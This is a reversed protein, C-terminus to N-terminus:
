FQLNYFREFQELLYFYDLHERLSEVLINFQYFLYFSLHGSDFAAEALSLRSALKDRLEDNPDHLLAEASLLINASAAKDYHLNLLLRDVGNLDIEEALLDTLQFKKVQGAQDYFFLEAQALLDRDFVAAQLLLNFEGSSPQRFYWLAYDEGVREEEFVIEEEVRQLVLLPKALADLLTAEISRPLVLLFYSLDTQSPMFLRLSALEEQKASLLVEDFLPDKIKFDATEEVYEHLLFFHGGTTGIQGLSNSLRERLVELREALSTGVFYEFELKPLLGESQESLQRTLRSLALWNVLGEAVYGDTQGILWHNLSGPDLVEGEPLFRFGYARLLTAASTVACGFRAMIPRDSWNQGHDYTDAIWEPGTQKFFVNRGDFERVVVEDFFAASYAVSGTAIKLGFKGGYSPKQWDDDTAFIKVGDIWLEIRERSYHLHMLYDRNWELIFPISTKRLSFGNRIDEVILMSNYFHFDYFNSADRMGVVFNKDTGNFVKFVFDVEYEEMGQWVEDKPVITSLKRSQNITAYVAQNNVQWYSWLGNVLEWQSLNGSSFDDRFERLAQVPASVLLLFSFLALLVKLM